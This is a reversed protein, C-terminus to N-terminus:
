TRRRRREFVRVLDMANNMYDVHIWADECHDLGKWKVLYFVNGRVDKKALISEVEWEEEGDIVDTPPPGGRGGFRDTQLFPKLMSVHVIRHTKLGPPLDLEVDVPGTVRRVTFPGMFPPMLKVADKLKFRFISSNVLVKDGEVYEVHRRRKDANRTMRDRAKDLSQKVGVLTKHINQVLADVSAKHTPLIHDVPLEPHRGYMAYFPSVGTSAQV